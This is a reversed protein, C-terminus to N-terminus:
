IERKTTNIYYKMETNLLAALYCFASNSVIMGKCRSMLQMDIYNKGQVNGEVFTINEFQGFGMEEQHEQCWSIDDSFVFLEWKGSVGELFKEIRNQYIRPDMAWGLTVYDGRRVHISVSNTKQIRALYERNRRDTIEPFRFIKLMEERYAAFWKNNIWYGHYYLDGEVDLIEPFYGNSPIVAVEGWFPNFEMYGGGVESVMRMEIGNECLIQPVSKGAQRQALIYGWVEEDFCESLMHTQIKFVKDLEYGNHVTNLAFYTDDLYMIEGPHSLEYYKAFIYQFAQNALGGNLFQIKM